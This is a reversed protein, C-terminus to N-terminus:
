TGYRDAIDRWLDMMRTRHKTNLVSRLLNKCIMDVGGVLQLNAHDRRGTLQFMDRYARLIPMKQKPKNLEDWGFQIFYDFLRRDLYPSCLEKGHQEILQRQQVYGAPNSQSFYQTRFEDFAEKPYRCHIMAKRSLGFHGDAAIGSLVVVEKIEPLVYLFPLTCEFQTKKRCGYETALRIADAELNDVPVKILHWDWGILESMREAAIADKSRLEGMQFTYAVVTKGISRAAYGVSASDVGGSFLLAVNRAGYTQEAVINELLEKM